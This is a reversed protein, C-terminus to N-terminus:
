SKRRTIPWIVFFSILISVLFAALTDFGFSQNREVLIIGSWERFFQEQKIIKITCTWGDFYWVNEGSLSLILIGSTSEAQASHLSSIVPLRAQLLDNPTIKPLQWKRNTLASFLRPLGVFKQQCTWDAPWYNVLTDYEPQQAVCDTWHTFVFVVNEVQRHEMRCYFTAEGYSAFLRAFSFIALLAVSALM